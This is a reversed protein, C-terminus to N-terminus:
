TGKLATRMALRMHALKESQKYLAEDRAKGRNFRRADDSQEAVVVVCHGPNPFLAGLRALLADLQARRRPVSLSM